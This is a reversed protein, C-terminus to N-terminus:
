IVEGLRIERHEHTSPNRLVLAGDTLLGEAVGEVPGSPTLIRVPCGLTDNLSRWGRVASDFDGELALRYDRGFIDLIQVLLAERNVSGGIWDNLSAAKSRLDGPWADAPVNCNLGFGLILHDIRTGRLVAETLIGGIKLGEVQIDNPWKVRAQIRFRHQIAGAAAAAMILTPLQAYAPPFGPRLLISVYISAGPPSFWPRERKGRGHTQTEAIVMAGEPLDESRVRNALYSNTSDVSNLWTVPGAIWEPWHTKSWDTRDM